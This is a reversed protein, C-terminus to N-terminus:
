DPRTAVGVGVGFFTEDFRAVVFFDGRRSVAGRLEPQAEVIWQYMLETM